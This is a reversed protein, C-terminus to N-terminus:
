RHQSLYVTIDQVTETSRNSAYIYMYHCYKSSTSCLAVKNGFYDDLRFNDMNVLIVHSSLATLLQKGCLAGPFTEASNQNLVFDGTIM